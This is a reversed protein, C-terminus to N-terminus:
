EGVLHFHDRGIAMLVIVFVAIWLVLSLPGAVGVMVGMLGGLLLLWGAIPLLRKLWDDRHRRHGSYTLKVSWLVAGGLIALGLLNFPGLSQM